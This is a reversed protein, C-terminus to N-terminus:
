KVKQMETDPEGYQYSDQGQTATAADREAAAEAAATENCFAPLLLSPDDVRRRDTLHRDNKFFLASSCPLKEMTELRWRSQRNRGQSRLIARDVM